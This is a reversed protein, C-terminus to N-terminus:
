YIAGGADSYRSNPFSFRLPIQPELPILTVRVSFQFQIPDCSIQLFFDDPRLILDFPVPIHVM